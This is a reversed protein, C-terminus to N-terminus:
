KVVFWVCGKNRAVVIGTSLARKCRREVSLCKSSIIIKISITLFFHFFFISSINKRGEM